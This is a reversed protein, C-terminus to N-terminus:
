VPLRVVVRERLQRVARQEAVAERLLERGGRGAERAARQHVDVEIVELAHVVREAVAGAVLEQGDDRM